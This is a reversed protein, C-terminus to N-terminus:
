LEVQKVSYGAEVIDELLLQIDEMRGHGAEQTVLVLRKNAEELEGKILPHKLLNQFDGKEYHPYSSHPNSIIKHRVIWCICPVFVMGISLDASEHSEFVLTAKM